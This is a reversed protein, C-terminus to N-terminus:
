DAEAHAFWAEALEALKRRQLAGVEGAEVVPGALACRAERMGGRMTRSLSRKSGTVPHRGADVRLEWGGSRERMYGKM